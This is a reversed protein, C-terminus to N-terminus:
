NLLGIKQLPWYVFVAKGYIFERPVQGWNRSDNSSSRHDGLVYYNGPKIKDLARSQYDRYESPVYPEALPQGNVIVTGKDIEIADGPLGIVRKIYSKSPEGPFWFVVM